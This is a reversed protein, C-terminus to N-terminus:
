APWPEGPKLMVITGDPYAYRLNHFGEPVRLVEKQQMPAVPARHEMPARLPTPPQVAVPARTVPAPTRPRVVDRQWAPEKAPAAPKSRGRGGDQALQDFVNQTAPDPKKSSTSVDAEWRTALEGCISRLEQEDVDDKRLLAYTIKMHEPHFTYLFSQAESMCSRLAESENDFGLLPLVRGFQERDGDTLRDHGGGCSRAHYSIAGDVIAMAADGAVVVLAERQAYDKHNVIETQCFGRWGYGNERFIRVNPVQYHLAMAVVAHAAEHVAACIRSTDSAIVSQRENLGFRTKLTYHVGEKSLRPPFYDFSNPGYRTESLM